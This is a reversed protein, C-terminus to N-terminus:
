AVRALQTHVRAQSARRNALITQDVVEGCQVCREATFELQGTDDLLDIYREEVMFGGCRGCGGDLTPVLQLEAGESLRDVTEDMETAM